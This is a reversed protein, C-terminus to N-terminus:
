KSLHLKSARLVNPLTDTSQSANLIDRHM